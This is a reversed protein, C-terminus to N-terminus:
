YPAVDLDIAMGIAFADASRFADSSQPMDIAGGFEVGVADGLKRIHIGQSLVQITTKANERIAFERVNKVFLQACVWGENETAESDRTAIQIEIERTGDDLYRLVISRIVGDCFGYFRRLIQDFNDQTQIEL